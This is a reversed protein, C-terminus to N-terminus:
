SVRVRVRVRVSMENRTHHSFPSSGVIDHYLNGEISLRSQAISPPLSKVVTYYLFTTVSM